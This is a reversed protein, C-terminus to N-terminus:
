ASIVEAGSVMPERILPEYRLSSKMFVPVGPACELIGKVWAEEPQIEPKTQHGIIIWDLFALDHDIPGYLPEFIAWRWRAGIEKLEVLRWIDAQENVTVGFAINDPYKGGEARDPAKTLIAFIHWSCKRMVSLIAETQAPELGFLDGTSVPTIVSPKKRGLPEDLRDPTGRTGDHMHPKFGPCLPCFHGLRKVSKEAWCAGRRRVACDTIDCGSAPSWTFGLRPPMMWDLFEWGGGKARNM